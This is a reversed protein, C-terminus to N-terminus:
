NDARYSVLGPYDDLRALIRARQDASYGAKQRSLSPATFVIGSCDELYDPSAALGLFRCLAALRDAPSSVVDEHRLHLVEASSGSGATWAPCRRPWRTCRPDCGTGGEPRPRSLRRWRYSWM